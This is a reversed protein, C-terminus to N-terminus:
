RIREVFLSKLKKLNMLLNKIPIKFLYYYNRLRRAKIGDIKSFDEETMKLIKNVSDYNM